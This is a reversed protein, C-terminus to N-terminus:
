RWASFLPETKGMETVAALLEAANRNFSQSPHSGLVRQVIPQAFRGLGLKQLAEVASQRHAPDPSSYHVIQKMVEWEMTPTLIEARGVMVRVIERPAPNLTLPLVPDAWEKPLTYLVRLGQEAFWSDSWTRVM